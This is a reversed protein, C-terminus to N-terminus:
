CKLRRILSMVENCGDQTTTTEQTTLTTKCLEYWNKGNYGLLISNLIIYSLLYKLM